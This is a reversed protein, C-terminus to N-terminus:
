AECAPVGSGSSIRTVNRLFPAPQLLREPARLCLSASVVPLTAEADSKEAELSARTRELWM